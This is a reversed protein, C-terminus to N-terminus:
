KEYDFSWKVFLNLSRIWRMPSGETKIRKYIRDDKSMCKVFQILNGVHFWNEWEHIFCLILSKKLLFYKEITFEVDKGVWINLNM